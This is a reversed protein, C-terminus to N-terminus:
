FGISVKADRMIIELREEGGLKFKFPKGRDRSSDFMNGNALQACVLYSYHLIWCKRQERASVWTAM